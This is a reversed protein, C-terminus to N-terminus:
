RFLEPVKDTDPDSIAVGEVIGGPKVRITMPVTNIKLLTALETPKAPRLVPFTIKFMAFFGPSGEDMMLGVVKLDKPKKEMAKNWVPIMKHCHPCTSLFILLVTTPGDKPFDITYLPTESAYSHAQFAAIVEGPALRPRPAPAAGTAPAAAPSAAGAPAPTQARLPAAAFLSAALVLVVGPTRRREIM